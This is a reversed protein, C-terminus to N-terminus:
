QLLAELLAGGKDASVTRSQGSIAPTEFSTGQPTPWSGAAHDPVAWDTHDYVSLEQARLGVLVNPTVECGLSIPCYNDDSLQLVERWAAGDGAHTLNEVWVTWQETHGHKTYLDGFGITSQGAAIAALRQEEIQASMAEEAGLAACPGEGSIDENSDYYHELGNDRVAETLAELLTGAAEETVVEPGGIILGAISAVFAGSLCVANQFKAQQAISAAVDHAQATTLTFLHAQDLDLFQVKAVIATYDCDDGIALLRAL